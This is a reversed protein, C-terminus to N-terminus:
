CKKFYEIGKERKSRLHSALAHLLPLVARALTM